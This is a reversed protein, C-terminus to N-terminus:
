NNSIITFDVNNLKSRRTKALVPRTITYAKHVVRDFLSFDQAM